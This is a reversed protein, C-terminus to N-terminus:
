LFRRKVPMFMYKRADPMRGEIQKISAEKTYGRKATDRQIKWFRRLTEDADMYIKLDLYKRTQPLYMSHLGCLIMFRKVKVRRKETFKGTDHDYDVRRVASGARISKLEEAQRYLYNAKPNLATFSNWNDDGREWRHDGDGEIYQLNKTGLCKEITKIMTSNGAGSDGSIGITFPANKRKYYLNDAVGIRYMSYVLYLLTASLLTFVLNAFMTSEIKLIFITTIMSGKRIKATGNLNVRPQAFSPISVIKLEDAAM